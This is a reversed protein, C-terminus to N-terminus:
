DKLFHEWGGELAVAEGECLEGIRTLELDPFEAAWKGMEDPGIDGAILLEYDEGDGIAEQASCGENCPLAERDLVFGCACAKALRPLDKGLGDSLDMMARVSVNQVLWRAERLRPVFELHKGTISGGLRGTVFLGDGPRGGGRPVWADREVRGSGAVSILVPAGSPLSTTEGGVVVAAFRVACDDMGGYLEEVWAVKCEPPLAVTVLLHRPEAGMAAFDSIVRAVAKWGVKRGPAEPLYHVGEVLCDTKLVEVCDEGVGEVVACDDGPGLVVGDGSRLLGTLREVLADEGLQGVTIMGSLLDM